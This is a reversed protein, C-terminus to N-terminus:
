SPAVACCRTPGRTTRPGRPVARATFCPRVAEALLSPALHRRWGPTTGAAALGHRRTLTLRALGVALLPLTAAVALLSLAAAVLPPLLVAPRLPGLITANDRHEGPRV